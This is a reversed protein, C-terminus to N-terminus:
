VSRFSRRHRPPRPLATVPAQERALGRAPVQALVPEQVRVPVPAPVSVQALALALALVQGRASAQVPELVRGRALGSLPGQRPQRVSVRCHM